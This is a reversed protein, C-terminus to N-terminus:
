RRNLILIAYATTRIRILSARFGLFMASLCRPNQAFIQNDTVSLKTCLLNKTYEDFENLSELRVVALRKRKKLLKKMKSRFDENIEYAEDNPNIDANRTACFINKDSVTYREFINEFYM